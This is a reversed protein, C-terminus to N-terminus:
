YHEMTQTSGGEVPVRITDMNQSLSHLQQPCPHECVKELGAKLNKQTQGWFLFWQITM